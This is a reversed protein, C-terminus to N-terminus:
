KKILKINNRHTYYKVNDKVLLVLNALNENIALMDLTVKTNIFIFRNEDLINISIPQFNADLLTCYEKIKVFDYEEIDEDKKDCIFIINNNTEKVIFDRWNDLVEQTSMIAISLECKEAIQMIAQIGNIQVDKNVM